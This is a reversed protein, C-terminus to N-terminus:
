FTMFARRCESLESDGAQVFADSLDPPTKLISDIRYVRSHEQMLFFVAEALLHPQLFM